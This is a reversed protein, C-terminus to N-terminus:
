KDKFQKYYNEIFWVSDMLGPRALLISDYTVKGAPSRALSDMFFRFAEIRKYESQSIGPRASKEQGTKLLLRPKKIRTIQESSGTQKTVANVALYISITSTSIVFLILLAIWTRRSFNETHRMLWNAWGGQLRKYGSHIKQSIVNSKWESNGKKKKSFLKM